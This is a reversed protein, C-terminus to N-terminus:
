REPTTALLTQMDILADVATAIGIVPNGIRAQTGNMRLVSRINRHEILTADRERRQPDVDGVLRCHGLEGFQKRLSNLLRCNTRPTQWPRSQKRLRTPRFPRKCSRRPVILKPCAANVM